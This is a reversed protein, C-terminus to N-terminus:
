EWSFERGFENNDRVNAWDDDWTEDLSQLAQEHKERWAIFKKQLNERNLHLNNQCSVNRVSLFDIFDFVEQQKVASMAQVRLMAQNLTTTPM